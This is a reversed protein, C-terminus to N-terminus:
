FPRSDGVTPLRKDCHHTTARDEMVGQYHDELTKGRVPVDDFDGDWNVEIKKSM